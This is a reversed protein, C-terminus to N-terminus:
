IIRTWPTSDSASGLRCSLLRTEPLGLLGVDQALAAWQQLAAADELGQVCNGHMVFVKWLLCRSLCPAAALKPM